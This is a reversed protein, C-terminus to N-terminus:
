DVAQGSANNDLSSIDLRGIAQALQAKQILWAYQAQIHQMRANALASQATVIDLINGAGMKYRGMAVKESQLASTLLDESSRFTANATNLNQFATWVALGISRNLVEHNAQQVEAQQEASRVQYTNNFGTFLPISLQVGVSWSQTDSPTSTHSFAYNGVLSVSPMGTAKAVDINAEAARVSAEAAALDPRLQKAADILQHVDADREADPKQLSPKAINLRRDAELGLANALNGAAVQADGEAKQRNMQAQAFLTQAQLTDAVAVAGVKYRVQAAKLAEAAAQEVAHTSEVLAQSAFLQYYAQIAQFMVSQLVADHSWNAAELSRQASELQAERGGFNYLLYNMSLIPTVRSIPAGSGGGGSITTVQLNSSSSNLSYQAATNLNVSPLYASKAAGTQAAQVRAAAWAQRTRPNYCLAQDVVDSLSWAHNAEHTNQCPNQGASGSMGQNAHVQRGTAFPDAFWSEDASAPAPCVAVASLLLFKLHHRNM